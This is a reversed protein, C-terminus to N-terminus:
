LLDDKEPEFADEPTPNYLFQALKSLHCVKMPVTVVLGNTHILMNRRGEDDAELYVTISRHKLALEKHKPAIVSEGLFKAFVIQFDLGDGLDRPIDFGSWQDWFRMFTSDYHVNLGRGKNILGTRLYFAASSM